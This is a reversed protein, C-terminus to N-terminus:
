PKVPGGTELTRLYSIVDLIEQDKLMGQFSPMANIGEKISALIFVDPRLLKESNAFNPADPMVNVGDAGHCTVCYKAYLRGGNVIDGAYSNGSMFAQLVTVLMGPLILSKMKKSLM